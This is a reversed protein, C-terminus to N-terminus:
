FTLRLSFDTGVSPFSPGNSRRNSIESRGNETSMPEDNCLILSTADSSGVRPVHHQSTLASRSIAPESGQHRALRRMAFTADLVSLTPHSSRNKLRQRRLRRPVNLVGDHVPDRIDAHKYSRRLDRRIDRLQELVRTLGADFVRTPDPDRWFARVLRQEASVYASHNESVEVGLRSALDIFGPGPQGSAEQIVLASLLPRGFASEYTSVVGLEAGMGRFPPKLMPYSSVLGRKEAEECSRTRSTM